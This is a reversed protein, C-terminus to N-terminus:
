RLLEGVLHLRADLGLGALTKAVEERYAPNMLIVHRPRLQRLMRPAHVPLASGPLFIGQRQPNVDVAADILAPDALAALFAVTKAGGQWLILPDAPTRIRRLARECRELSSRVDQAFSQHLAREASVDMAGLAAPAPDPVAELVLYQGEFARGLGAIRLGALECARRLTAATFYNCHEYYIDWFARETFVRQADPLDLLVVREPARAAWERLLSLFGHVDPLHELTHRCVLADAELDLLSADFRRAILEIGQPAREPARPLHILPDVGIARGVGARMLHVLFAGDGCGIELVTRHTLRHRSVWSQALEAAYASFHASASQSSEYRAGLEGLRPDFSRNFAFGCRECAGLDIDGRPVQRATAADEFVSTCTVPVGHTRYFDCVSEGGCLPCRVRSAGPNAM